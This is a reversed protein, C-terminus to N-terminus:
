AVSVPNLELQTPRRPEHAYKGVKLVNALSLASEIYLNNAGYPFYHCNMTVCAKQQALSCLACALIIPEGDMVEDLCSIRSEPKTCYYRFVSQSQM